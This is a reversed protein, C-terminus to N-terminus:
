TRMKTGPGIIYADLDRTTVLSRAVEQLETGTDRAHRELVGLADDATLGCREMLIGQAQGIRTRGEIASALQGTICAHQIENAVHRALANALAFHHVAFTVPRSYYFTLAGASGAPTVVRTALVSCVGLTTLAREWVPWPGGRAVDLVALQPAPWIPNVAPGDALQSQLWDAIPVVADSAALTIAEGETGRLAIGVRDCDCHSMALAPVTALWANAPLPRSSEAVTTATTEDATTPRREFPASSEM